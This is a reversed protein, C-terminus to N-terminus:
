IGLLDKLWQLTKFRFTYKEEGGTILEQQADDFDGAEACEQVAEGTAATCLSPFVVCWWNKGQAQGINVRLARYRGAPLTFTEYYRTDFNEYGLSVTITEDSVDAAADAITQLNKEIVCEAQQANTCHATLENVSELVADRVELKHAQDEQSDSNAVVHLRVTKNAIERQLILNEVGFLLFAVAFVAFLWCIMRIKMFFVTWIYTTSV